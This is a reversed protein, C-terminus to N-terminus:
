TFTMKTIIVIRLNKKSEEIHRTGEKAPVAIDMGANRIGAPFATKELPSHM